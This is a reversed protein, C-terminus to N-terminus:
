DDFEIHKTKWREIFISVWFLFIFLTLISLLLWLLYRGFLQGGKGTFKLRHGQIVTHKIKWRYFMCVVWPYAIGVTVIMILTGLLIKGIKQHLKGDFFSDGTVAIKNTPAQVQNIPQEKKEEKEEDEILPTEPIKDEHKIIDPDDFNFKQVIKAESEEKVQEKRKYHLKTKCKPCEELEGRFTEGCKPCRYKKM